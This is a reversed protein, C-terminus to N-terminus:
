QEIAAKQAGREREGPERLHHAAVVVVVVVVVMVMVVVVVAM